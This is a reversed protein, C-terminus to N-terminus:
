SNKAKQTARLIGLSRKAKKPDDKKMADHSQRAKVIYAGLKEKTDENVQNNNEMEVESLDGSKFRKALAKRRPTCTAKTMPTCYGKHKPNVAKQIWDKESLEEEENPHHIPTGSSKLNQMPMKVDGFSHAGGNKAPGDVTKMPNKVDGYCHNDQKDAPEEVKTASKAAAMKVKGYSHGHGTEAPASPMDIKTGTDGLHPTPVGGQKDYSHTAERLKKVKKMPDKAGAKVGKPETGRELHPTKHGSDRDYKHAKKANPNYHYEDLTEETEESKVFSRSKTLNAFADEKGYSDKPGQDPSASKGPRPSVKTGKFVQEEADEADADFQPAHYPAAHTKTVPGQAGAWKKEEPHKIYDVSPNSQTVQRLKKAM